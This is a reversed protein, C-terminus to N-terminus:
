ANQSLTLNCYKSSTVILVWQFFFTTQCPLIRFDQLLMIYIVVADARVDMSMFSVNEVTFIM